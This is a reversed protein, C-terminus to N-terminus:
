NYGRDVVTARNFFFAGCYGDGMGLRDFCDNISVVPAVGGELGSLAISGWNYRRDIVTARNISFPGCCCDTIGLRDFLDDTSVVPLADAELGSLAVSGWGLAVGQTDCM